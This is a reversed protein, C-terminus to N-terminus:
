DAQRRLFAPIEYGAMPDGAHYADRAVRRVQRGAARHGGWGFLRRRWRRTFRETGMLAHLAQIFARVIDAERFGEAAISRLKALVEGPLAGAIDDLAAPYGRTGAHENAFATLAARHTYTFDLMAKVQDSASERRWVAPSPRSVEYGTQTEEVRTQGRRQFIGPNRPKEGDPQKRLFAPIDYTEMGNNVGPLGRSVPTGIGSFGAPVMQPVMHLTPLETAREKADRRHVVVLSTQETVLQYKMALELQGAAGTDRLRAAAAVRALTDGTGDDAMAVIGVREGHHAGDGCWSIAAETPAGRDFGAFVHVTGGSFVAMGPNTQWAQPADWGVAIDQVRPQRMRQVMRVMAAEIESATAVLECAGGTRVALEHLLSSAPAAGIGIAFIRQGAGAADRILPETDWVHGDTILLVDAECPRALAFTSKLAGGIGTGGLTARTRAIWAAAHRLAQPTAPTLVETEHVVTGGFRSFSFRDEPALHSLVQHLAQRASAISDGNMSASCDVLIKLALPRHAPKDDLAPCFSALVVVDEGDRGTASLPRGQLEDAILVFDRDLFASSALSIEVCGAKRRMAVPHTPSQLRGEGVAGHLRVQASLAHEAFLGLAPVQHHRMGAASPSGYRPAIVSPVVIRVQGQEFSLLLAYRFRVVATEGALMNGANVTYLGESSRELMFAADGQEIAAEYRQETSAKPAVQAHLVKGGIEVEMGLIVARWPLPFTYVAEIGADGPNMYRQEVCMELLLGRLDGSVAVSQLVPQISPPM